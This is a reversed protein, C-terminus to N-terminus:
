SAEEILVTIREISRLRDLDLEEVDLTLGFDTELVFM